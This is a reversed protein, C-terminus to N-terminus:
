LADAVLDFSMDGFELFFRPVQMAVTVIIRDWAGIHLEFILFTALYRLRLPDFKVGSGRM